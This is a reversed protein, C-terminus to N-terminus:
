PFPHTRLFYESSALLAALVQEDRIGQSLETVWPNIEASTPTRGLYLQYDHVVLDTRYETSSLLANAVDARTLTGNNLGTLFTQSAAPDPNRKLLDNYVQNLWVTNNNNGLTPNEFYENSSVLGSILSEITEGNQIATLDAALGKPTPQRRLYTAFLNKIVDRRYESSTTLATTIALRQQATGNLMSTLNNGFGAADPGRLLVNEYLGTLWQQDTALGAGDRHDFFYEKSSLIGEEFIADPSPKGAGGPTQGLISLLPAIRQGDPAHGLYRQFILNIFDTRYEKSTALITAVGARAQQEKGSLNNLFLTTGGSDASRNLVTVYAAAIWNADQAALTTAAGAQNQFYEGSSVLSSIVFEDTFGKQLDNVYTALGGPGPTRGLIHQFDATVLDQFYETSNLLEGAVTVRSVGSELKKLFFAEGKPDPARNL